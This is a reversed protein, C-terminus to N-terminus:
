DARNGPILDNTRLSFAIKSWSYHQVLDRPVRRQSYFVGEKRYTYGDSIYWAMYYGQQATAVCSLCLLHKVPLM